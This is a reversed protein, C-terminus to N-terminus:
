HSRKDARAKRGNGNEKREGHRGRTREDRTMERRRQRTASSRTGKRFRATAKYLGRTEGPADPPRPTRGILRDPIESKNPAPDQPEDILEFGKQLEVQVRKKRREYAVISGPSSSWTRGKDSSYLEFRRGYIEIQKFLTNEQPNKEVHHAGRAAASM